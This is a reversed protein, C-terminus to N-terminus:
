MNKAYYPINMMTKKQEALYSPCKNYHSSHGEYLKNADKCNICKFKSHDKEVRVPCQESTHDESMCYGCCEANTCEAHYHGFKHCKACSKIYVRDMVRYSSFGIFIRDGESKLADRIDNGVRMVILYGAEKDDSQSKNMNKKTFVVSFESGSEIKEKIVKNQAKVMEIFVEEDVYGTVNRISISPCKQKVNVIRSGPINADNLLPLLQDKSKDSPLDIYLDGNKKNVSAKSVQIGNSTVINKVKVMDVAQGESKICVTVCEKVKKIRNQDEWASQKQPIAPPPVQQTKKHEAAQPLPKKMREQKLENVEKVLSEVVVVLEAMQEKMTSAAVNESATQCHPCVFKFYSKQQLTKFQQVATKGCYPFTGDCVAHFKKECSACQFYHKEIVPVDCTSCTGDDRIQHPIM